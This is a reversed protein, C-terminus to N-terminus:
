NLHCAICATSFPFYTRSFYFPSLFSFNFLCFGPELKKGLNIEIEERREGLDGFNEGLDEGVWWGIEVMVTREEDGGIGSVPAGCGSSRGM